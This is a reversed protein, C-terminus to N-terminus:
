YGEQKQPYVNTSCWINYALQRDVPIEVENFVPEPIVPEPVTNRPIKYSKVKNAIQEEAAMRVFEDFGLNNLLFKLRAKNRNSREGYIGFVRIVSESFPIILDEHMFESVTQGIYPQAGLSGGLVVKFGRVEEGNEYKVKPIFGIDHIFSLATDEESSSFGFKFKRGLEMSVPNGLFYKFFGHAYPAVDFPEKPDIGAICSATVNRVTNSCAERITIDDESLKAWLEPTRDLSVYHIQIDQRTTFHL